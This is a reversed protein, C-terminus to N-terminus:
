TKEKSGSETSRTTTLEPDCVTWDINYKEVFGKLIAETREWPVNFLGSNFKNSYFSKGLDIFSLDKHLDELALATNYLILDPGDKKDGYDDSTILGIIRQSGIPDSVFADGPLAVFRCFTVYENYAQPYIQKFEKAIGSGWVGQRNCAHVLISSSPADFLSMKAYKLGM